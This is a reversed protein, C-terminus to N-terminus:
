TNTRLIHYRLYNFVESHIYKRQETTLKNFIQMYAVNNRLYTDYEYAAM